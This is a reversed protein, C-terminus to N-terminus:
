RLSSALRDAVPGLMKGLESVQGLRAGSLRRGLGNGWGGILLGAAVYGSGLLLWLFVPVLSIRITSILNPITLIM